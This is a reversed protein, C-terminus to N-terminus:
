QFDVALSLGVADTPVISNDIFKQLIKANTYGSDKLEQYTEQQEENYSATIKEERKADKRIELRIKALNRKSSSLYDDVVDSYTTVRDGKVRLFQKAFEIRYPEIDPPELIYKHIEKKLKEYNISGLFDTSLYDDKGAILNTLLFYGFNFQIKRVHILQLYLKTRLNPIYFPITPIGFLIPKILATGSKCIALKARSYDYSDEMVVTVFHHHGFFRNLYTSNNLNSALLIINNNTEQAEQICVEAIKLHFNIEEIRSGLLVIIDNREPIISKKYSEIDKSKELYDIVYAAQCRIIKKSDCYKSKEILSYYKDFKGGMFPLIIRDSNALNRISQKGVVGLVVEKEPVSITILTIDRAVVIRILPVLYYILDPSSFIIINKVLKKNILIFLLLQLYIFLNSLLRTLSPVGWSAIDSTNAALHIKGLKHLSDTGIGIYQYKAYESVMSSRKELFYAVYRSGSEEPAIVVGIPKKDKKSTWQFNTTTYSRALIAILMAFLVLAIEIGVFIGFFYLSITGLLFLFEPVVCLLIQM